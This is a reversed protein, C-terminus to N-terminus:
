QGLAKAISRLESHWDEGLPNIMVVRANLEQAVSLALKQDFEQQVFVIKVGLSKARLILKQLQAPNPEKGDHEITLQEFDFEEAFDTLAPHYIVFGRSPADALLSDIEVRLEDVKNQFVKYEERYLSDKQPYLESLATYTNSAMQRIGRLSTWYHPDHHHGETHTHVCGKDLPILRLNPFLEGIRSLWAKEFGLEGVYLYADADSLGVLDQASPEYLEPANGKPLLTLVQVTHASLERVLSATPSITVAVMPTDSLTHKAGTCSM